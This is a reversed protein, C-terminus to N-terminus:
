LTGAEPVHVPSPVSFGVWVAGNRRLAGGSIAMCVHLLAALLVVSTQFNPPGVLWGLQGTRAM